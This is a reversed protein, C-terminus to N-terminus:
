LFRRLIRLRPRPKRLRARGVFFATALGAALLGLQIRRTPDTIRLLRTGSGDEVRVGAPQNWVLGGSEGPLRLLFSRTMPVLMRGLHSIREGQRITTSTM